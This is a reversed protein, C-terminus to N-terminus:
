DWKLAEKDEPSVRCASCDSHLPQPAPPMTCTTLPAALCKHLAPHQNRTVTLGLPCQLFCYHSSLLKQQSTDVRNLSKFIITYEKIKM